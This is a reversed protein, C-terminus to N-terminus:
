FRVTVLKLDDMERDDLWKLSDTAAMREFLAPEVGMRILYGEIEGSLAQAAAPPNSAVSGAAVFRHVGIKARPVGIRHVGGAFVLVCASACFSPQFAGNRDYTGVATALGSSRLFAGATMAQMVDGGHSSLVVADGSTLGAKIVSERLEMAANAGFKGSVVLAARSRGTSDTFANARVSMSLSAGRIRSLAYAAQPPLWYAPFTTMAYAGVLLGFAAAAALRYRRRSVWPGKTLTPPLVELLRSSRPFEEIGKLRRTPHHPDDLQLARKGSRKPLGGWPDWRDEM